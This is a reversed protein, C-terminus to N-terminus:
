NNYSIPQYVLGELRWRDVCDCCLATDVTTELIFIYGGFVEMELVDMGVCLWCGFGLLVQLRGM